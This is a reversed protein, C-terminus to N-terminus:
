SDSAVLWFDYFSRETVGFIEPGIEDWNWKGIVCDIVAVYKSPRTIHTAEDRVFCSGTSKSRRGSHSQRICGCM